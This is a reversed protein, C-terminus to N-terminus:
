RLGVKQMYAFDRNYLFTRDYETESINNFKMMRLMKRPWWLPSTINRRKRENLIQQFYEPHGNVYFMATDAMKGEPHSTFYPFDTKSFNPFKEISVGIDIFFMDSNVSAMEMKVMESDKVYNNVTWDAEEIKPRIVLEYTDDKSMLKKIKDVKKQYSKTLTEGYLM